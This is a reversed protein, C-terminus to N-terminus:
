VIILFSFLLTEPFFYSIKLCIVIRALYLIASLARIQEARKLDFHKNQAVNKGFYEGRALVEQSKSVHGPRCFHRWALAPDIDLKRWMISKLPFCPFFSWSAFVKQCLEWDAEVNKCEKCQKLWLNPGINLNTWKSAYKCGAVIWVIAPRPTVDIRSSSM